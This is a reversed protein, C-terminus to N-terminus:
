KGDKASYIGPVTSSKIYKTESRLYRYVNKYWVGGGAQVYMVHHRKEKGQSYMYMCSAPASLFAKNNTFYAVCCHTLELRDMNTNTRTSPRLLAATTKAKPFPLKLAHLSLLYSPLCYMYYTCPPHAGAVRFYGCGACQSTHNDLLNKSTNEHDAVEFYKDMKKRFTQMRYALLDAEQDITVNRISKFCKTRSSISPNIQTKPDM